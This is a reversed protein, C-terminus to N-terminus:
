TTRKSIANAVEMFYDDWTLRKNQAKDDNKVAM